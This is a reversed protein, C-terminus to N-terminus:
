LSTTKGTQRGGVLTFYKRRAVLQMVREFRPAPSLLYHEGPVCPGTTNFSLEMSAPLM